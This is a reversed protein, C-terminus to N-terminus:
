KKAHNGGKSSSFPKYEIGNEKLWVVQGRIRNTARFKRDGFRGIVFQEIGSHHNEHRRKIENFLQDETDLNDFTCLNCKIILQM